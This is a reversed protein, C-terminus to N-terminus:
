KAAPAPTNAAPTGTTAAAPAAPAAQPIELDLHMHLVLPGHWNLNPATSDGMFMVNRFGTAKNVEEAVGFDNYLVRWRAGLSKATADLALLFQVALPHPWFGRKDLAAKLSLDVSFGRGAWSGGGHGAYNSATFPPAGPNAALQTLFTAVEPAVRAMHAETQVVAPIDVRNAEEAQYTPGFSKMWKASQSITLFDVEERRGVAWGHALEEIRQLAWEQQECRIPVMEAEVEAGIDAASKPAPPTEGKAVKPKATKEKTIRNRERTLKANMIALWGKGYRAIGGAITRDYDAQLDAEYKAALEATVTAIDQRSVGAKADAIKKAAAKKADAAARAKAKAIASKAKPDIGEVAAALAADTDAKSEETATKAAAAIDTRYRKEIEDKVDREARCQALEKAFKARDADGGFPAPNATPLVAAEKAPPTPSPAATCGVVVINKAPADPCAAMGAPAPTHGGPTVTPVPDPRAKGGEDDPKRSIQLDAPTTPSPHVGLSLQTWNPNSAPEAIAEGPRGTAQAVRGLPAAFRRAGSLM